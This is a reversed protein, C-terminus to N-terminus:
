QVPWRCELANGRAEEFMSPHLFSHLLENNASKSGAATVCPM